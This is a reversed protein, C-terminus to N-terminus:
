IPTSTRTSNQLAPSPAPANKRSQRCPAIPMRNPPGPAPATNTAAQPATQPSTVARACKQLISPLTSHLMCNPTSTRNNAIQPGHKHLEFLFLGIMGKVVFRCPYTCPRLGGLLCLRLRSAVRYQPGLSPTRFSCAAPVVRGNLVVPMCCMSTSVFFFCLREAQFPHLTRM